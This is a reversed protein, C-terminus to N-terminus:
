CNGRSSAQGTQTRDGVCTGRLSMSHLRTASQMHLPPHRMNQEGVRSSALQPSKSARPMCATLCVQNCPNCTQPALGKKERSHQEAPRAPKISHRLSPGFCALAKCPHRTCHFGRSFVKSQGHWPEAKLLPPVHMWTCQIDGSASRLM